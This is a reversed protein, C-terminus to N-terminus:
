HDLENIYSQVENMRNEDQIFTKYKEFNRIAGITDGLNKDATALYFYAEANSSDLQLVKKFRMKAKEWQNSQMSFVGLYFNAKIHNSDKELIERLLMIGKMPDKGEQVYSVALALKEDISQEEEAVSNKEKLPPKNPAFYLLVVLVIAAFIAFYQFKSM